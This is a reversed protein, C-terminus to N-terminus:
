ARVDRASAEINVPIGSFRPMFNIPELYQQLSTLRGTNSGGQVAPEAESQLAGFMHAMSIVGRRLAAESKCVARIKGFESQIDIEQEDCLGKVPMDAPNMYAWNVPYKGRTRAADRYASNMTELIRRCTLYHTFGSNATEALVQTLEAAIDPPCLELRVGNDSPAPLVLEESM